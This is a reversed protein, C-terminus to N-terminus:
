SKLRVVPSPTPTATARSASARAPLRISTPPLWSSKPSCPSTPLGASQRWASSTDPDNGAIDALAAQDDLLAAAEIRVFVSAANAAIEALLRRDGLRGLVEAALGTGGASDSNHVKKAFAVMAQPEDLKDAVARKIDPAISNAAVDALLMQENAAALAQVSAMSKESGAWRDSAIRAHDAPTKECGLLFLLCFAALLAVASPFTILFSRASRTTKM